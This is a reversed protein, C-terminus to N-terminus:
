RRRWARLRLPPARRLAGRQPRTTRSARWARRATTPSLECSTIEELSGDPQTRYGILKRPTATSSTCTPATPRSGTTARAARLRNREADTHARRRPPVPPACSGECGLARQGRPLLEDRLQLRLKRRVRGPRGPSISLWCLESPKGRTTDDPRRTLHLGHRGLRADGPLTRRCRRIRPRVSAPPPEPVAPVVALRRRRGPVVPRWACRTRQRPVRGPRLSRACQVRGFAAGRRQALGLPHALRRSQAEGARRLDDRRGPVERGALLEVTTAVRNPKGEVNVTYREPRATLRGVDDVSLLRVDDPGLSHLVYLTGTAADYALSKASGSPGPVINGTRKVDVLTLRGDDDVTFSSVSNDGANTAFLFRNDRSLIVSRAGEFPNPTSERNIIPNYGGSGAGGTFCREAETITGNAARLYHIVCNRTENTQTYLHGVAEHGNMSHTKEMSFTSFDPEMPQMSQEDPM